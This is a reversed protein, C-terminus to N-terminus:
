PTSEEQLAHWHEWLGDYHQRDFASRAASATAVIADQLALLAVLAPKMDAIRAQYPALTAGFLVDAVLGDGDHSLRIGAAQLEDVFAAASM